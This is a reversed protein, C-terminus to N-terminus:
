QIPIRTNVKHQDQKANCECGKSTEQLEKLLDLQDNKEELELSLAQFDIFFPELKCKFPEHITNRVRLSLNTQSSEASAM